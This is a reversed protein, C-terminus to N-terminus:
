RLLKLLQALSRLRRSPDLGLVLWGGSALGLGALPVASSDVAKSLGLSILPILRPTAGPHTDGALVLEALGTNRQGILRERGRVDLTTANAPARTTLAARPTIAASVWLVDNAHMDSRGGDLQVLIAVNSQPHERDVPEVVNASTGSGDAEGSNDNRHSDHEPTDGSIDSADNM